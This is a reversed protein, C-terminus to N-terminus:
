GGVNLNFGHVEHLLRVGPHFILSSILKLKLISQWFWNLVEVGMVPHGISWQVVYSSELKVVVDRKGACSKLDGPQMIFEHVDIDISM